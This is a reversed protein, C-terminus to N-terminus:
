LSDCFHTFATSPATQAATNPLANGGQALETCAPHLAHFFLATAAVLTTRRVDIVQRDGRRFCNRALEPDFPGSDWAGFVHSVTLGSRAILAEVHKREPFRLTSSTILTENSSRYSTQFSIFEGQQSTIALTELVKEGASVRIVRSRGEWEGVWDMRPNRTEFAVTGGEKLHSRMTRLAALEDADTLLVQFAHGTMVILDFCRRSKYSQAACEVWEVGEAQPKRKAVALMAAAPDVGTM